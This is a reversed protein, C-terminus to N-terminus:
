GDLLRKEGDIKKIDTIDQTVELCGLYHGKADHVAFYRIYILRGKLNIWFQAISRKGSRFDDLIKNVVHVSKQPHCNQVNLGIVAKTRPFIREASQSFYRVTDDKDVFTIDVPLNNFIAEIEHSALTGTEFSIVNTAASVSPAAKEIISEKDVDVGPTFCCYGLDDFQRRIEKFEVEPIVDLATPFLITNEKSFHSGLMEALALGTEELQGTFDSFAIDYCTDVVDYLREKIERIKIHEMWMISPPQTVGHKELYPFLVNEERVYHSESERFHKVIHEVKEMVDRISDFNKAQKVKKAATNLEAVFQLMLKHEEMLIHIPHGPPAQAGGSKLAEQMVDLHVDCLEQIKERDMGENILEQEVMAIDTPSIDQIVDKFKQKVEEPNDGRDLSQFLKKLERRKDGEGDAM